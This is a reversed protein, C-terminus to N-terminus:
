INKKPTWYSHQWDKALYLSAVCIKLGQFIQPRVKRKTPSNNHQESPNISRTAAKSSKIKNQKTMNRKKNNNNANNQEGENLHRTFYNIQGESRCHRQGGNRIRVVFRQVLLVEPDVAGEGCLHLLLFELLDCLHLLGVPGRRNTKNQKTKNPQYNKKGTSM